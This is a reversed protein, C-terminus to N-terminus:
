NILIELIVVVVNTYVEGLFELKELFFSQIYVYLIYIYKYSDGSYLVVIVNYFELSMFYMGDGM